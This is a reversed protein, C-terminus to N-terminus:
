GAGAQGADNDHVFVPTDNLVGKATSLTGDIRCVHGGATAVGKATTPNTLHNHVIVRPM